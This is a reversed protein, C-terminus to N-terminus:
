FKPQATVGAEVIKSTDGGSAIYFADSVQEEAELHSMTISYRREGDKTYPRVVCLYKKGVEMGRVFNAEYIRVSATTNQKEFYATGLRYQTGKENNLVFLKESITKLVGFTKVDNANQANAQVSNQNKTEM